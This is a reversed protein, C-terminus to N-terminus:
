LRVGRDDSSLALQPSVPGTFIGKELVPGDLVPFAVFTVTREIM